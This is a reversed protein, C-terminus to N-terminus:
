HLNKRSIFWRQLRRLLRRILENGELKFGLLKPEWKILDAPKGASVPAPNETEKQQSELFKEGEFTLGGVVVDDIYDCGYEYNKSFAARTLFGRENASIIRKALPQFDRLAEQSGGVPSFGTEGNQIRKLIEKMQEM